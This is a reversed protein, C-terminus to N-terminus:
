AAAPDWYYRPVRTCTQDRPRYRAKNHARRSGVCQDCVPEHRRIHWAAGSPTGVVEAHTKM